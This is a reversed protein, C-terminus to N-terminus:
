SPTLPKPSPSSGMSCPLYRVRLGDSGRTNFSEARITQRITHQRLFVGRVECIVCALLSSEIHQLTGSITVKSNNALLAISVSAESRTEAQFQAPIM